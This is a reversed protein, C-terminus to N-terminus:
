DFYIVYSNNHVEMSHDLVECAKMEATKKGNFKRRIHIAYLKRILTSTMTLDKHEWVKKMLNTYEHSHLENGKSNSFLLQEKTMDIGNNKKIQIFKNLAKVSGKELKIIRPEDGKLSSRVKNNYIYLIKTNRGKNLIYNTGDSIKIPSIYCTALENRLFHETHIWGILNLTALEIDTKDVGKLKYEYRSLGKKLDDITLTDLIKEKEKPLQEDQVDEVVKKFQQYVETYLKHSDTDKTLILMLSLYNKKSCDSLCWSKFLELLGDPHILEKPMDDILEIEVDLPKWKIYEICLKNLQRKYLAESTARIDPNGLRKNLQEYIYNKSVEGINRHLTIM